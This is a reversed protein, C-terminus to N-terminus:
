FDVTLQAKAGNDSASGALVGDYGFAIHARRGVAFSAGLEVRAANRALPLGQVVFSAGNGAFRAQVSPHDFGFVHRWGLTGYWRAVGAGASWRLGLTGFTAHDSGSAVDLATVSGHEHVAHSHVRVHALAVYPELYRHAVDGFRYGADVFLQDTRAHSDSSLQQPANGVAFARHTDIDHWTAALGYGLDVHGAVSHGYLALHRDKLHASGQGNMRYSTRGLGAAVGLRSGDGVDTDVGVVGGSSDAKARALGDSGDAHSWDGLAHVWWTTGQADGVQHLRQEVANRPQRSGDLMVRRLDAHITGTMHEFALAAQGASTLQGFLLMGLPSAPSVGDLAAGLARAQPTDGVSAFSLSSRTVGVVVKGDQYTVGYGMFDTIDGETNDFQGQVTGKGTSQILDIQAGPTLPQDGLRQIELTTGPQITVNGAVEVSDSRGTAPDIQAEYISGTQMVLNGRVHLTGPSNGPALTGGV